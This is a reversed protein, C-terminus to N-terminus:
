HGKKPRGVKLPEVRELAAVLAQADLAMLAHLGARLLEGKKAERQASLARSKLAAVLAFDDAPMTFSDRVLKARQKAPKASKRAAPAPEPAIPSALAGQAARKLLPKSVGATPKSPPTRKTATTIRRTAM